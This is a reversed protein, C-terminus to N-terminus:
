KEKIINILMGTLDNIKDEIRAINSKLIEKIEDIAKELSNNQSELRTIRSELEEMRRNRSGFVKIIIGALVVESSIIAALTQWDM